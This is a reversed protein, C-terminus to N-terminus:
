KEERKDRQEKVTYDVQKNLFIGGEDRSCLGLQCTLQMKRKAVTHSQLIASYHNVHKCFLNFDHIYPHLLSSSM